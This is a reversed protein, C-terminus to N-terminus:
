KGSSFDLVISGNFFKVGSPTNISVGCYYIRGRNNVSLPPTVLHANFVASNSIINAKVDNLRRLTSFETMWIIDVRSAIGRVSMVNCQLTAPKGFEITDISTVEVVPSPVTFFLIFM